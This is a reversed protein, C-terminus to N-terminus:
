MPKQKAVAKESSPFLLEELGVEGNTAAVIKRALDVGPRKRKHAIHVAYAWSTGCSEVMKKTADTGYKDWYTYLDM